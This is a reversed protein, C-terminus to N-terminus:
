YVLQVKKPKENQCKKCHEDGSCTLNLKIHSYFESKYYKCYKCKM